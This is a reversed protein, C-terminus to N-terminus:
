FRFNGSISFRSSSPVGDSRVGKGLEVRVSTSRYKSRTITFIDSGLGVSAAQTQAFEADTPNELTTAGFGLFIYPSFLTPTKGLSANFKTSVEARTVWNFMLEVALPYPAPNTAMPVLSAVTLTDADFLTLRRPLAATVPMSPTSKIVRNWPTAM